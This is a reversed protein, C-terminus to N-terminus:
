TIEGPGLVDSLTRVLTNDPHAAQLSTLQERAEAHRGARALCYARNYRALLLFSYRGASGLVWSRHRDLWPRRVWVAESRTFAEAAEEFAGQRTLRIGRAHDACLGRRVVVFRFALFLLAGMGVGYPRPLLLWGLACFLALPLLTGLNGVLSSPRLTFSAPETM